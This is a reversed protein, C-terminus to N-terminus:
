QVDKLQPYQDMYAEELAPLIYKTVFNFCPPMYGLEQIDKGSIDPSWEVKVAVDPDSGDSMLTVTVKHTYQIDETM